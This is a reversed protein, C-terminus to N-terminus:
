WGSPITLVTGPFIWNGGGSKGRSRAVSDIKAANANYLERWRNANGTYRKAIASLTDGSKITYTRAPKAKPKAAPKPKPAAAPKPTSKLVNTVAKTASTLDKLASTNGTVAGTNGGLAGTNKDIAGTLKDIEPVNIRVIPSMVLPAGDVAAVGGVPVPVEDVITRTEVSSRSRSSLIYAAVGAGGVLLAWGGIPLPGVKRSLDFDAM